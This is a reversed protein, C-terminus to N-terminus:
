HAQGIDHRPAVPAPARRRSPRQQIRARGPRHDIRALNPRLIGQRQKHDAAKEGAQQCKHLTPPAPHRRVQNQQGNDDFDVKRAQRQHRQSHHQQDAIARRTSQRQAASPTPIARNVASGNTTKAMVPGAFKVFPMATTVCSSAWGATKEGSKNVSGAIRASPVVTVAQGSRGGRARKVGGQGVKVPQQEHATQCGQSAQAQHQPAPPALTGLGARGPHVRAQHYGAPKDNGAEIEQPVARRDKGM